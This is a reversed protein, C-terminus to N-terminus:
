AEKRFRQGQTMGSLGTRIGVRGLNQPVSELMRQKGRHSSKDAQTTLMQKDRVTNLVRSFLSWTKKKTDGADPM